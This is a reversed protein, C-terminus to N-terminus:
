VEGELGESTFDVQKMAWERYVYLLAIDAGCMRVM